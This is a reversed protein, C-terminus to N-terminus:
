FPWALNPPHSGCAAAVARGATCSCMERCSLMHSQKGHTRKGLLRSLRMSTHTSKVCGHQQAFLPCAAAAPGWLAASEALCAVGGVMHAGVFSVVGANPDTGPYEVLVNGRGEVFSVHQIRLPGGHDESLPELVALVHQAAAHLLTLVPAPFLRSVSTLHM